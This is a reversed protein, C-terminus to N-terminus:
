PKPDLAHLRTLAAAADRTLSAGAAGAALAKLVDRAAPTDIYELVEVARLARLRDPHDGRALVKLLERARARREPADSKVAARLEPEVAELLKALEKQAAERTAFDDAALDAVLANVTAAAPVAAPKLNDGILKVADAPRAGLAAVARYGKASDPSALDAWLTTPDGALGTDPAAARWDVVAMKRSNGAVFLKGDPSVAFRHWQAPVMGIHRLKGTQREYLRVTNSRCPVILTKGDASFQCDVPDYGRGGPGGWPIVRLATFNADLLALGECPGSRLHVAPRFAFELGDPSYVIKHVDEVPFKERAATRLPKGDKVSYVRLPGEKMGVALESRDPSFALSQPSERDLVVRWSAEWKPGTLLSVDYKNNHMAACALLGPAVVWCDSSVPHDFRISHVQRGSPYERLTIDDRNRSMAITKDDVFALFLAIGIIQPDTELKWPAAVEKGSRPNWFRVCVGDVVALVRGNPSFAFSTSHGSDVELVRAVPFSKTDAGTAAGGLALCWAAIVFIRM